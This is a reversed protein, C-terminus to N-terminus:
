KIVNLIENLVLTGGSLRVFYIGSSFDSLDLEIINIGKKISIQEAKVITGETTYIRLLYNRAPLYNINLTLIDGAPNPIIQMIAVPSISIVSADQMCVAQAKLRGDNTTIQIFSNDTTFEFIEMPTETHMGLLITGMLETLVTEGRSLIVNSDLITLIREGAIITDHKIIGNTLLEPIFVDAYFKLKASYTLNIIDENLVEIRALLPIRFDKKGIVGSTDPMGVTALGSGYGDIEIFKEESCPAEIDLILSDPFYKLVRPTFELTIRQSEGSALAFPLVPTSLRYTSSDHLVSVSSIYLSDKGENLITIGKTSKANILVDGFDVQKSGGVLNVGLKVEVSTTATCGNTDTITLYYIGPKDVMIAASTDGTSWLYQEYENTSKLVIREGDCIVFGKNSTIEPKKYPNFVVSVSDYAPCSLSNTVKVSYVGTKRV